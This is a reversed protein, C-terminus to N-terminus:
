IHIEEMFGLDKFKKVKFFNRCKDWENRSDKLKIIVVRGLLVSTGFFCFFYMSGSMPCVKTPFLKKGLQVWKDEWRRKIEKWEGEM